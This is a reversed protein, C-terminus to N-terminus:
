GEKIKNLLKKIDVPKYFVSDRDINKELIFKEVKEPELATMIFIKLPKHVLFKARDYLLFGSGGPLNVDLLVVDPQEKKILMTAQVSDYAVFVEYNEKKIELASFNAVTPPDEVILIKM